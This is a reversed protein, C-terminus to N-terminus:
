PTRRILTASLYDIASVNLAVSLADSSTEVCQRTSATHRGSIHFKWAPVDISRRSCEEFLCASVVSQGGGRPRGSHYRM